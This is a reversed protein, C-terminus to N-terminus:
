PTRHPPALLLGTLLGALLDWGSSHGIQTLRLAAALVRSRDGRHLIASALEHLPQPGFGYVCDRVITYSIRTTATRSNRLFSDIEPSPRAVRAPDLAQLQHAAFLLGGMYDDGSPTLGPGLGVLATGARLVESLAGARCARMVDEIPGRAARWLLQDPRDLRDLPLDATSKDMLGVAHGLGRRDPLEAIWGIREAVAPSLGGPPIDRHRKVPEAKWTRAHLLPVMPTGDLVLWDSKVEVNANVRARSADYRALLARRHLVTRPHAVWVLRGRSGLIYFAGRVSAVVRGAFGESRLLRLVYDGGIVTLEPSEVMFEHRDKM